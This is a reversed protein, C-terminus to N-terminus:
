AYKSSKELTKHLLKAIYAEEKHSMGLRNNTEHLYHFLFEEFPPSPILQDEVQDRVSCLEEIFPRVKRLLHVNNLTRSWQALFQKENLKVAQDLSYGLQHENCSSICHDAYRELFEIAAEMSCLGSRISQHMLLIVADTRDAGGLLENELVSFTLDTSRKLLLDPWVIGSAANERLFPERKFPRVVPQQEGAEEVFMLRRRGRTRDPDLEQLAKNGEHRIRTKMLEAEEEDLRFGALIHHGHHDNRRLFFYYHVEGTLESVLPKIVQQIVEDLQHEYRPYFRYTHWEKDQQM